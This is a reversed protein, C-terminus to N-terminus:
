QNTLTTFFNHIHQNHQQTSPLQQISKIPFLNLFLHTTILLHTRSNHIHKPQILATPILTTLPPHSNIPTTIQIHTTTLPQNYPII